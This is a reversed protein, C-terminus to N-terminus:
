VTQQEERDEPGSKVFPEIVVVAVGSGLSIVGTVLPARRLWEPLNQLEGEQKWLIRDPVLVMRDEKKELFVAAIEDAQEKPKELGVLQWLYYLPFSTGDKKVEPRTASVDIERPLIVGVAKVLVWRVAYLEGQTEVVLFDSKDAIPRQADASQQEDKKLAFAKTADLTM